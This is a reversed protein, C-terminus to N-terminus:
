VGGGLEGAGWPSASNHLLVRGGGGGKASCKELGWSSASHHERRGSRVVLGRAGGVLAQESSHRVTTRRAEDTVHSLSTPGPM